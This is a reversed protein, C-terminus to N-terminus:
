DDFDPNDLESILKHEYNSLMNRILSKADARVQSDYQKVMLQMIHSFPVEHGNIRFEVTFVYPSNEGDEKETLFMKDFTRISGTKAKIEESVHTAASILAWGVVNEHRLIDNSMVIREPM